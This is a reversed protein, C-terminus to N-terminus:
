GPPQSAPPDAVTPQGEDRSSRPLQDAAPPATTTTTTTRPPATTTTAPSKDTTVQPAPATVTRSPQVVVTRTEITTTNTVTAGDRGGKGFLTTGSGGGSASGGALLEPVTLVVACVLFGLLGTVVALWWAHGRRVGHYRIEGHQAIPEGPDTVLTSQTAPSPDDIPAEAAVPSGEQALAGDAGARRVGGRVPPVARVVADTSKALAERILALVVPTCGAAVLTGPAWLRSCTYAAIVSACATVVLTKLDLGGSLATTAGRSAQHQPVNSPM